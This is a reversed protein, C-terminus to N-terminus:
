SGGGSVFDESSFPEVLPLIAAGEGEAGSVGFAVPLVKSGPRLPGKRSQRGGGALEHDEHRYTCPVNPCRLRWNTGASLREDMFRRIAKLFLDADPHSLWARDASWGRYFPQLFRRSQEVVQERTAGGHGNQMVFEYLATLAPLPAIAPDKCDAQLAELRERFDELNMLSLDPWAAKPTLDVAGERAQPAVVRPGSDVRPGKAESGEVIKASGASVKGTSVAPASTVSPGPPAAATARPGSSVPNPPEAADGATRPGAKPPRPDRRAPGTSAEPRAAEAGEPALEEAAAPQANLADRFQPRVRELFDRLLGSQETRALSLLAELREDGRGDRTSSM